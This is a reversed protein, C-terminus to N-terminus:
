LQIRWEYLESGYGGRQCILENNKVESQVSFNNWLARQVNEIQCGRAVYERSKAEIKARVKALEKKSMPKM